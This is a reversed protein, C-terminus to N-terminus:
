KSDTQVFSSGANVIAGDPMKVSKANIVSSGNRAMYGDVAVEDGIKMTDRKWGYRILTNPSGLEAEWNSISGNADRVVITFHAHPNSWTVKAVTGRLTIPKAPDFQAVFSHHAIASSNGIAFLLVVLSPTTKTLKM